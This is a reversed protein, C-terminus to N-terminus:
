KERATSVVPGGVPHEFAPGFEVVRILGRAPVVVAWRTEAVSATLATSRPGADAHGPESGEPELDRGGGVVEGSSTGVHVM